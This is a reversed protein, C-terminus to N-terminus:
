KCTHLLLFFQWQSACQAGGNQSFAPKPPLMSLPGMLSAPLASLKIEIRVWTSLSVVWFYAVVCLRGLQVKYLEKRASDTTSQHTPKSRLTVKRSCCLEREVWCYMVCCLRFDYLLFLILKLGWLPSCSHSHSDCVTSSVTAESYRDKRWTKENNQATSTRTHTNIHTNDYIADASLTTMVTDIRTVRILRRTVVTITKRFLFVRSRRRKVLLFLVNSFSLHCDFLWHPKSDTMTVTGITLNNSWKNESYFSKERWQNSIMKVKLFVRCNPELM